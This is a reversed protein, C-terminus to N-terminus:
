TYVRVEALQGVQADRNPNEFYFRVYRTSGTHAVSRWQGVYATSRTTLTRWTQKDTSVQISFRDCSGGRSFQWEIKGVQKVAGLDLYVYAARGPTSWTTVWSTSTKGDFIISSPSSLSTHGGGSPRLQMGAMPAPEVYGPCGVTTDTVSGFTTTWYHRYQTDPKSVLGIGIVNFRQDLMNANHGASRKWQIFTEAAGPYGGAINEARASSTPYGHAAINDIWTSGDSLSHAFYDHDVMDQSHFEAAAGLTKSLRLPTRGNAVRYVNITSLFECEATQPVYGAAAVSPTSGTPLFSIVLASLVVFLQFHTRM